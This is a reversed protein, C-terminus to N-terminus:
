CFSCVYACVCGSPIENASECGWLLLNDCQTHVTVSWLAPSVRHSNYFFGVWVGAKQLVVWDNWLVCVFVCLCECLIDQICQLFWWAKGTCSGCAEDFGSAISTERKLKSCTWYVCNLRQTHVCHHCSHNSPVPGMILSWNWFEYNGCLKMCLKWVPFQANLYQEGSFLCFVTTDVFLVSSKFFHQYLQWAECVCSLVEVFCHRHWSETLTKLVAAWSYSSQPKWSANIVKLCIM